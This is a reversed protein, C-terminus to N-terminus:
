TKAQEDKEDLLQYGVNRRSVIVLGLRAIKPRLEHVEQRLRELFNHRSRPLVERFEARGVLGGEFRALVNMIDFQSARRSLDITAIRKSRGVTLRGYDFRIGLYDIPAPDDPDISRYQLLDYAAQSRRRFSALHELTSEHCFTSRSTTSRQKTADVESDESLNGSLTYSFEDAVTNMVILFDLKWDDSFVDQPLQVVARKLKFYTSWWQQFCAQRSRLQQMLVSNDSSSDDLVQALTYRPTKRGLERKSLRPGHEWSESHITGIVAEAEGILKLFRAVISHLNTM